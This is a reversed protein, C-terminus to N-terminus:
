AGPAGIADGRWSPYGLLRPRETVWPQDDAGIEADILGELRGLLTEVTTRHAPEYALNVQESPDTERDYLVLDNDRVLDDVTRPRNPELPSFYRGFTYRDDTWGRLFGRKRWDPRLTGAMMREPGDPQGLGRWYGDDITTVIEVATLVGDRVARGDLAPM